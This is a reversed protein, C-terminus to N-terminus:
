GVSRAGKLAALIANKSGIEKHERRNKMLLVLILPYACVGFMHKMLVGKDFFYKQHYGTFWTSTGQYVQGVHVPVNWVKLGRKLADTLFITDEGCSYRAGGGFLLSFYINKDWIRERKCSFHVAGYRLANFLRVRHETKNKSVVQDGYVVDLGVLILDAKPHTEYADIIKQAYGDEYVVDEDAILIIDATARMLATNRSLGVGRENTSIWLIEHGKYEFKEVAYRDCQNVVIADSDIRMKDLLSHDTQNMTSVLVQLTM